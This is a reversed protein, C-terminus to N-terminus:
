KNAGHARRARIKLRPWSYGPDSVGAAFLNCGKLGADDIGAVAVIM